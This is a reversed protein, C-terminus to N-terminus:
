RPKRPMPKRDPSAGRGGQPGPKNEWNTGKGGKPGPPNNDMDSRREHWENMEKKGVVGDKNADAQGVLNNQARWQKIEVGDVIGDGNADAEKEWPKNVRAREQEKLKNVEKRDVVGDRNADAKKEWPRNVKAKDKDAAYLFSVTFFLVIVPAFITTSFSIIKRM